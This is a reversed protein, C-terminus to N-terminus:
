IWFIGLDIRGKWAIIIPVCFLVTRVYFREINIIVIILHCDMFVEVPRFMHIDWIYTNSQLIALGDRFHPIVSVVQYLLAVILQHLNV